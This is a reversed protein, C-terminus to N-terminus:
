GLRQAVELPLMEATAEAAPPIPPIPPVPPIPPLSQNTSPLPPMTDDVDMEEVAFNSPNNYEPSMPAYYGNNREYADGHRGVRGPGTQVEEDADSEAEWNDEEEDDEESMDDDDESDQPPPEYGYQKFHSACMFNCRGGQSQKPCRNIACLPHTSSRDNYRSRANGRRRIPGAGSTGAASGTGTPGFKEKFHAACMHNKRGGQSQKVCGKVSCLPKKRQPPQYNHRQHAGSGPPPTTSSAATGLTSVSMADMNMDAMTAAAMAMAGSASSVTISSVPRHAGSYAMGMESYHRQCMGNCRKGQSQKSCGAVSCRPRAPDSYPWSSKAPETPVTSGDAAVAYEASDASSGRANDSGAGGPHNAQYWERFHTRCMDRNRGGQSQKDCGEVACRRRQNARQPTDAPEPLAQGPLPPLPPMDDDELLDASPLQPQADAAAAATTAPEASSGSGDDGIPSSSPELPSDM